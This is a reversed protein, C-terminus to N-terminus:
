LERTTVFRALDVLDDRAAAPMAVADLRALALGLQREAERQTWDRGGAEQVLKAALALDEDGVPGEGGLLGVLRESSPTGRSLAVTVPMSKKRQRLDSWAPKGTVEPQGWIGLLDDVAQFALGLHHGFEGLAAVTGDPAGALVAGISSSCALLAGTKDGEMAMCEAVSVDLRGEFSLDEAQGRILRDTAGTLHHAARAGAEGPAELLVEEALTLLADGALIALAPGFAKWATPRHRREEDGDMLDDHLLSFNHVLEVAVAGPLAQRADVGVAEASLAALAPRVAKGSNGTVPRGGADVWGLHYATVRAISPELREVAARLAPVTLDRVRELVAPIQVSM